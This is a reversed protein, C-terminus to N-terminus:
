RGDPRSRNTTTQNKIPQGSISQTSLPMHLLRLGCKMLRRFASPALVASVSLVLVTLLTRLPHTKM